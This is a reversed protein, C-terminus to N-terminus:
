DGIPVRLGYEGPLPTTMPPCSALYGLLEDFLPKLNFDPSSSHAAQILDEAVCVYAFNGMADQEEDSGAMKKKAADLEQVYDQLNNQLDSCKAEMEDSRTELEFKLGRVKAELDEKKKRETTLQAAATETTKWFEGIAM